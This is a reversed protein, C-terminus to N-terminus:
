GNVGAKVVMQDPLSWVCYYSIQRWEGSLQAIELQNGTYIITKQDPEYWGISTNFRMSLVGDTWRTRGPAKSEIARVCPSYSRDMAAIGLCRADSPDCAQAHTLEDGRTDVPPTPPSIFSNFITYAVALGALGLITEATKRKAQTSHAPSKAKLAKNRAAQSKLGACHICTAPGSSPDTSIAHGCRPCVGAATAAVAREALSVQAQTADDYPQTCGKCALGPSFDVKGCNSCRATPM